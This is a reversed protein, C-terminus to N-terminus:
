EEVFTEVIEKYDSGIPIKIQGNLGVRREMQKAKKFLSIAVRYTNKITKVCEDKTKCLYCSHTTSVVKEFVPNTNIEKTLMRLERESINLKQALEPRKIGNEKGFHNSALYSYLLSSKERNQNPRM